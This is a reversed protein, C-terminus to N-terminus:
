FMPVHFCFMPVRRENPIKWNSFNYMMIKYRSLNYLMIKKNMINHFKLRIVHPLNFVVVM